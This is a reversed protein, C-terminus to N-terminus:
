GIVTTSRQHRGYRAATSQFAKQAIQQPTQATAVTAICFLFFVSFVLSTSHKIGNKYEIM